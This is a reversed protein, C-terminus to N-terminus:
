KSIHRNSKIKKTRVFRNRRYINFKILHYELEGITTDYINSTHKQRKDSNRLQFLCRGTFNALFLVGAASIGRHKNLNTLPNLNM